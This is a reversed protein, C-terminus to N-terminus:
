ASAASRRGFRRNMYPENKMEPKAPPAAAEAERGSIIKFDAGRGGL